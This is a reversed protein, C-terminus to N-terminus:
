KVIKLHPKKIERKVHKKTKKAQKGTICIRDFFLGEGNEFAYISKIDDLPFYIDQPVGEFRATFSVLDNKIILKKVSMPSINIVIENNKFFKPLLNIKKSKKVLIYPTLNSEICWDFIARILYPKTSEM